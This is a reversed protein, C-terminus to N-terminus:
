WVPGWHSKSDLIGLKCACVTALIIPFLNILLFFVLIYSFLIRVFVYVINLRWAPIPGPQILIGISCPLLTLLQDVM